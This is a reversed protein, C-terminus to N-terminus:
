RLYSVATRSDYKLFNKQWALLLWLAVICTIGGIIAANGEGWWTAETGLWMEGLRPGGAVVVIFVGQLRGRMHDPTATQLITQRFIASVQDSAGALALAITAAIIYSWKPESPTNQGAAVVIVGFAVISLGWATIAYAIVKGQKTVHTLGGSFASAFIGGIAVGATLLGVTTSGGGLAIMGIAPLLVKPSAFIMACLDVLFTMRVDSQTKLYAFGDLVSRLGVRRRPKPNGDADLEPEPRMPPLKFVAFLAALYLAADITYATAYGFFQVLLAGILPGVSFALNGTLGMLSNAAPMLEPRLLKPIIAQRAPNNVAFCASQLAVLAYLVYENRVGAWAQLALTATIVWLASSTILSVKRRDYVDVLAGGYLGLLVLPILAALGLLGVKFTSQTIDYVELGVAMVTVQAGFNSVGLGWWLRAFAPSEKLPTTDVLIRSAASM